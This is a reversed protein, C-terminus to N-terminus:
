KNILLKRQEQRQHVPDVVSINGFNEESWEDNESKVDKTWDECNVLYRKKMGWTPTLKDAHKQKYGFNIM